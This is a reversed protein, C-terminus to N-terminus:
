TLVETDQEQEQPDPNPDPDPYIRDLCEKVWHDAPMEVYDGWLNIFIRQMPAPPQLSRITKELRQLRRSLSM